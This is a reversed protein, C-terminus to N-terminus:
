QLIRVADGAIAIRVKRGPPLPPGAHEACLVHLGGGLAYQYAPEPLQERDAQLRIAVRKRSACAYEGSEDRTVTASMEQAAGAPAGVCAAAIIAYVPHLPKPM